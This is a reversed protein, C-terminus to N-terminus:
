RSAQALAREVADLTPDIEHTVAQGKQLLIEPDKLLHGTLIAVVDDSREIVGEGVLRRVGAVSAASAPECGVGARDIVQKAALIEADSVTTM